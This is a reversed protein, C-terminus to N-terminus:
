YKRVMWAVHEAWRIKGLKIRITMRIMDLAITHPLINIKSANKLNFSCLVEFTLQIGSVPTGGSL